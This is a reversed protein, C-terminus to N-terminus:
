FTEINATKKKVTFYKLGEQNSNKTVKQRKQVVTYFFQLPMKQLFKM